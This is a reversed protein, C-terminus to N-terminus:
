RGQGGRGAESPRPALLTKTKKQAMVGNSAMFLGTLAILSAFTTIKKM